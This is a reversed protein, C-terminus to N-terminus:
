VFTQSMYMWLYLKPQNQHSNWKLIPGHLWKCIIIIM